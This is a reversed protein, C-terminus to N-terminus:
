KTKRLLREQPSTGPCDPPPQPSLFPRQLNWVLSPTASHEESVGRLPSGREVSTSAPKTEKRAAKPNGNPAPLPLEWGGGLPSPARKGLRPGGPSGHPERDTGRAGAPAVEPCCPRTTVPPALAPRPPTIAGRGKERDRAPEAGTHPHPHPTQTCGGGALAVGPITGAGCRACWPAGPQGRAAATRGASREPTRGPHAHPQPHPPRPHGTHSPACPPPAGPGGPTDGRRAPHTSGAPPWRGLSAAPM